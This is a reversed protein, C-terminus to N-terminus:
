PWARHMDLHCPVHQRRDAGLRFLRVRLFAAADQQPCTVPYGPNDRGAVDVWRRFSMELDIGLRQDVGMAALSGASWCYSTIIM